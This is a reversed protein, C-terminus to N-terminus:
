PTTTPANDTVLSPRELAALFATGDGMWASWLTADVAVPGFVFLAMAAAPTLLNTPLRQTYQQYLTWLALGSIGWAPWLTQFARGSLSASLAAELEARAPVAHPGGAAADLGMMTYVALLPYPNGLLAMWEDAATLRVVLVLIPLFLFYSWFRLVISSKDGLAFRTKWTFSLAETAVVFVAGTALLSVMSQTQLMSTLDPGQQALVREMRAIVTDM